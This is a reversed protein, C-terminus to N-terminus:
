FLFIDSVDEGLNEFPLDDGIDQLQSTTLLPSMNNIDATFSSRNLTKPTGPLLLPSGTPKVVTSISPSGAISIRRNMLAPTLLSSSQSILNSVNYHPIVHKVSAKTPFKPRKIITENINDNDTDSKEMMNDIEQEAAEKTPLGRRKIIDNVVIWKDAGTIVPESKEDNQLISQNNRPWYIIENNNEGVKIWNEPAYSLRGFRDQLVVFM